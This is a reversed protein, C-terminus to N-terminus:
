PFLLPRSRLMVLCFTASPNGSVGPPTSFVLIDANQAAEWFSGNMAILNNPLKIGPLYKFNEHRTNIIESLATDRIMEDYVYLHVRSDFDGELVNNSVVAAIASGWGEAGIICIKLKGAM